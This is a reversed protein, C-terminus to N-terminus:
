CLTSGPSGAGAAHRSLDGSAGLCSRLPSKGRSEKTSLRSRCCKACMSRKLFYAEGGTAGYLAVNGVIINEEPVFTAKKPPYLILKGGSLGKGFYDNADGEVEMTMGKPIFAAFSQGASGYCKFYLTDEPLGAGGWKRTVESGTITGVTRYINKIQVEQRVKEGREIAPAALDLLTKVDFSREIGHDQSQQCYTGIFAPVEPRHLIRSFDLGRAKWHTVAKRVDLRDVRGVMENMTRFGLQAM